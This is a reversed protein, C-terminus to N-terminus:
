IKGALRKGLVIEKDLLVAEFCQSQRMIFRLYHREEPTLSPNEKISKEIRNKRNSPVPEQQVPHVTKFVTEWGHQVM